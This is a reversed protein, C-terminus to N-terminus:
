HATFSHYLGIGDRDQVSKQADTVATNWVHFDDFESDVNHQVKSLYSSENNTHKM